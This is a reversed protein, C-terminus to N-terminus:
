KIRIRKNQETTFAMKIYFLYVIMGVISILSLMLGLKFSESQFTFKVKHVGAPVIVARFAYDAKLINTEKNDIYAKWGPYYTDSLFLVAPANTKTVFNISQTKYSKLDVSMRTALNIKKIYSFKNQLLVTKKPDFNVNFFMKGFQEPTTYNQVKNVLFFRPIAQNNKYIKWNDKSYVLPYKDVPFVKESTLNESRDIIYSIGLLNIIKRRYVNRAFDSASAPAIIADSRTQDDFITHIKGDNSSRIFEGYWKPYLPDYGDPSYLGLQTAFNAETRASGLGWVRGIGSKEKLFSAVPANPFVLQKPVFPTFKQFARWSNFIILLFIFCILYVKLRPLFMIIAAFLVGIFLFFFEYLSQKLAIERFPLEYAVMCIVSFILIWVAAAIYFKRKNTNKLLNDLGYGSLISLSFCLLFVMLNPSSSSIFPIQFKYFIATLPNLTVFVLILLSAFIYFIVYTTLKKWNMVSLSSFFLPLSGISTVKGVYTDNLVYNKTAPNGFFDPVVLMVLQWPQILIKQVIEKYPHPSRAAYGILEIGPIIQISAIGFSIISLIFIHKSIIRRYFSYFFVFIFLYVAIQPHGAFIISIIAFIFLFDALLSKKEHLQEIILLIFPLWLIVSGITNYELWVIMFSCFGYSIGALFASCLSLKIKRAYLYTFFAALFPQLFVLISWATIQPLILYLLSLPYLVASQFNALLPSGSFNYPNWLPFIGQKIQQIAFTKWPYLQRLTDFFQAKNPYSAPNYGLYSYTKWPTYEAILLDGPFPVFGQLFMKYFFVATIFFFLLLILIYERLKM